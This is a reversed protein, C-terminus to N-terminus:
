MDKVINFALLMHIIATPVNANAAQGATIEPQPRTACPQDVVASHILPNWRLQLYSNRYSAFRIQHCTFINRFTSRQCPYASREIYLRVLTILKNATKKRLYLNLHRNLLNKFKSYPWMPMASIHRNTFKEFLPPNTIRRNPGGVTLIQHDKDRRLIQNSDTCYNWYYALKTIYQANSKFIGIWTGKWKWPTKHYFPSISIKKYSQWELICHGAISMRHILCRLFRNQPKTEPRSRFKPDFVYFSFRFVMHSHYKMWKIALVGGSPRDTLIKAHQTM